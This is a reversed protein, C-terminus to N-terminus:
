VIKGTWKFLNKPINCMPHPYCERKTLSHLTKVFRSNQFHTSVSSLPVVQAMSIVASLSSQDSNGIPSVVSVRVVDPIVNKLRFSMKYFSYQVGLM